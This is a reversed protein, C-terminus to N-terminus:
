AGRPPHPTSELSQSVAPPPAGELWTVTHVIQGAEQGVRGYALRLFPRSLDPTVTFGVAVPVRFMLWEVHSRGFSPSFDEVEQENVTRYAADTVMRVSGLTGRSFIGFCWTVTAQLNAPNPGRVFLGIDYELEMKGPGRLFTPRVERRDDGAGVVLYLGLETDDGDARVEFPLELRRSFWKAARNWDGGLIVVHNGLDDQVMREDNTFTVRATPNEARLHGFVEVLADSDAYSLLSIHNPHQPDAYTVGNLRDQPLTSVVVCVSRGDPFHLLRGGLPGSDAALAEPSLAERRLRTLEQLLEKNVAEEAATLQGARLPRVKGDIVSRSSAFL